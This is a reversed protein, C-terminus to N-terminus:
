EQIAKEIRSLVSNGSGTEKFKDQLYEIQIKADLLLDKFQQMEEKTEQKALEILENFSKVLFASTEKESAWGQMMELLVVDINIEKEGVNVSNM